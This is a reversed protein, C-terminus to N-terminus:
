FESLTAFEVQGNRGIDLDLQQNDRDFGVLGPAEIVIYWGDAHLQAIARDIELGVLTQPFVAATDAPGLDLWARLYDNIGQRQDPTLVSRIALNREFVLDDIAREATITDTRAQILALDATEPVLLNNLVALAASYDIRATEIQPRYTAFIAEIQTLQDATLAEIVLDQSAEPQAELDTLTISATTLPDALPQALPMSQPQSEALTQALAGPLIFGLGALAILASLVPIPAIGNLRPWIPITKM